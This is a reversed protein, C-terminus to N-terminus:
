LCFLRKVVIFYHVVIVAHQLTIFLLNLLYIHNINVELLWSGHYQVKYTSFHNFIM